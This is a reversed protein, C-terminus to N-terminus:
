VVKKWANTVDQAKLHDNSEYRICMSSHKCNIDRNESERESYFACQCGRMGFSNASTCLTCHHLITQQLRRLSNRHLTKPHCPCLWLQDSNVGASKIPSPTYMTQLGTSKASSSNRQPHQLWITLLYQVSSAKTRGVASVHIHIFLTVDLRSAESFKGNTAHMVAQARHHPTIFFVYICM